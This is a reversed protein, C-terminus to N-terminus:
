LARVQVFTFPNTEFAGRGPRITESLSVYPRM